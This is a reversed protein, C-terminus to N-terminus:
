LDKLARREELFEVFSDVCDMFIMLIVLLYFRGGGIVEGIGVALYWISKVAKTYHIKKWVYQAYSLFLYSVFSFPTIFLSIETINNGVTTLIEEIREM